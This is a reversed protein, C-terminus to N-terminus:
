KGSPTKGHKHFIMEAAEKTFLNTCNIISYEDFESVFKKANEIISRDPNFYRDEPDDGDTIFGLDQRRITEDHLYGAVVHETTIELYCRGGIHGLKVSKIDPCLFDPYQAKLEPLIELAQAKPVKDTSGLLDYSSVYWELVDILDRMVRIVDQSEIMPRNPEKRMEHIFLNKLVKELVVRCKTLSSQPDTTMYDLASKLYDVLDDIRKELASIKECLFAYDTAM